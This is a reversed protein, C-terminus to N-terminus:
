LGDVAETFEFGVRLCQASFSVVHSLSFEKSVFLGKLPSQKQYTM